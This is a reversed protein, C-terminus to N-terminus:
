PINSQLWRSEGTVWTGIYEGNNKELRVFPAATRGSMDETQKRASEVTSARITTRTGTSEIITYKKM